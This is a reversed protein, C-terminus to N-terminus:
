DPLISSVAPAAGKRVTRRQRGFITRTGALLILNLGLLGPLSFTTITSMACPAVMPRDDPTDDLCDALGDGNEDNESVGCGCSGALQKLPDDPCEDCADGTGDGDEDAQDENSVAPCNDCLEDITDHDNSGMCVTSDGFFTGIDNECERRTLHGCAIGVCCAGLRGCEFTLTVADSPLYDTTGNDVFRFMVEYEGDPDYISDTSDIHWVLHADFPPAGLETALGASSFDEALDPSRLHLSRQIALLEVVPLAGSELTLMDNNPLDLALSVVAPTISACGVINGDVPSLSLVGAHIQPLVVLKGVSSRGLILVNDDHAIAARSSLAMTLLVVVILGNARLQMLNNQLDRM